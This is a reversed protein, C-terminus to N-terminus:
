DNLGYFQDGPPIDAKRPVDITTVLKGPTPGRFERPEILLLNQTVMLATNRFLESEERNKAIVLHSNGNWFHRGYNLLGIEGNELPEAQQLCRKLRAAYNPELLVCGPLQGPSVELKWEKALKPQGKRSGGYWDFLQNRDVWGNREPLTAPLLKASLPRLVLDEAKGHYAIAELDRSRLSSPRQGVVEGTIIFSADSEALKEHLLEIMTSRCDLCPAMEKAFGFRPRRVMELTNHNGEILLRIGLRNAADGATGLNQWHAFSTLVHVGIVEIGQRQMLRVAIQSDLGGSFLALCRM